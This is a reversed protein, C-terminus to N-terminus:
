AIGGIRGFTDLLTEFDRNIINRESSAFFRMTSYPRAIIRVGETDTEFPEEYSPERHISDFFKDKLKLSIETSTTEWLYGFSTDVQLRGFYFDYIKEAYLNLALVNNTNSNLTIPNEFNKIDGSADVFSLEITLDEFTKFALDLRSQGPNFISDNPTVIGPNCLPDNQDCVELRIEIYKFEDDGDTGGIENTNTFALCESNPHLEGDGVSIGENVYFDDCSEFHLEERKIDPLTNEDQHKSLVLYSKLNLYRQEITNIPVV